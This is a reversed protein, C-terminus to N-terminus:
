NFSVDVKRTVDIRGNNSKLKLISNNYIGQGRILKLSIENNIKEEEWSLNTDSHTEAILDLSANQNLVIEIKGNVTTITRNATFTEFIAKVKASETTINLKDNNEREVFLNISGSKVSIIASSKVGVKEEGINIVAKDSNININGDVNKATLILNKASPILLEGRINSVKIDTGDIKETGNLNGYVNGLRVIGIQTDLTLNGNVNGGTITGTNTSLTLAQTDILTNPLTIKGSETKLSMTEAKFSNSSFQINGSTTSFDIFSPATTLDKVLIAGSESKATLSKVNLAVPENDRNVNGGFDITGSKTNVIFNVNSINQEAPITLVAICSSTNALWTNVQQINIVLQNQGNPTQEEISIDFNTIDSTKALGYLKNTVVLNSSTADRYGKKIEIDFYGNEITNGKPDKSIANIIVTDYNSIEKFDNEYTTYTYQTNNSVWELGFISTGPIFMMICVMILFAGLILGLFIFLYMLFGSKVKM